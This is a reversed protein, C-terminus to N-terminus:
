AVGVGISLPSTQAFLLAPCSLLTHIQCEYTARKMSANSTCGGTRRELSDRIKKTDCSNKQLPCTLHRLRGFCKRAIGLPVIKVVRRGQREHIGWHKPNAHPTTRGRPGAYRLAEDSADFGQDRLMGDAQATNATPAQSSEAAAAGRGGCNAHSRRRLSHSDLGSDDPMRAVRPEAPRPAGEMLVDAIEGATPDRLLASPSHQEIRVLVQRGLLNPAKALAHGIVPMVKAEDDRGLGSRREIQLVVCALEHALHFRVQARLKLPEADRVVVGIVRM